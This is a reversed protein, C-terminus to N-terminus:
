LLQDVAELVPEQMSQFVEKTMLSMMEPMMYMMKSINVGSFMDILDDIGYVKMAGPATMRAIGGTIAGPDISVGPIGAQKIEQLSSPVIEFLRPKVGIRAIFFGVGKVHFFMQKGMVAPLMSPLAAMMDPIMEAIQRGGTRMLVPMVHAMVPPMMATMVSGLEVEGRKAKEVLKELRPMYEPPLHPMDQFAM